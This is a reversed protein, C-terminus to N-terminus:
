KCSRDDTFHVKLIKIYVKTAKDVWNTELDKTTKGPEIPSIFNGSSWEGEREGKLTGFNDYFYAKWKIADVPSPANNIFEVYYGINKGFAEQTYSKVVDLGCKGINKKQAFILQLSCTMAILLIHRTKM